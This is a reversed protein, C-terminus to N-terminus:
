YLERGPRGILWPSFTLLTANPLRVNIEKYRALVEMMLKLSFSSCTPTIVAKVRHLTPRRLIVNYTMPIDIVLFDVDLDDRVGRLQAKWASRPIGEAYGGSVTAVVETSCEEDRPELRTPEHEKLLFWPGRTMHGNQEYFEYYKQANHCKPALTMPPLRKLMPHDRVRLGRPRSKSRSGPQEDPTHQMRHRPRLQGPRGDIAQVTAINPTSGLPVTKTRERIREFCPLPRASSAVEVAKKVQKSVQQMITHMMTSMFNKLADVM